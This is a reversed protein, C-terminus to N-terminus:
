MLHFLIDFARLQLYSTPNNYDVRIGKPYTVYEKRSLGKIEALYQLRQEYRKFKAGFALLINNKKFSDNSAQSTM